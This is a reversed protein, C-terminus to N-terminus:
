IGGMDKTLAKDFLHLNDGSSGFFIGSEKWGKATKNEIEKNKSESM